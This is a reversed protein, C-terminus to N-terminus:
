WYVYYLTRFQQNKQLIKQQYYQYSMHNNTCICFLSVKINFLFKLKTVNVIHLSYINSIPYIPLGESCFSCVPRVIGFVFYSKSTHLLLETTCSSTSSYLQVAIDQFHQKMKCYSDKDRNQSIISEIFLTFLLRVIHTDWKKQVNSM